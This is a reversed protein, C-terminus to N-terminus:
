AKGKGETMRALAAEERALARVLAPHAANDALYRSVNTWPSLDFGGFQSNVCAWWLYTDIISWEDGLWWRRRAMEADLRDLLISYQQEGRAKVPVPDGTTLMFPVKVARVTPHWGSAVWFLAALQHAEDLATAAPPFLGAEPWTAHLWRLIAGNETLPEGDVLLCPVKGLPNVALYAPARHEGRTMDLMTDTYPVGVHELAALTVRTCATHAHYLHLEPM